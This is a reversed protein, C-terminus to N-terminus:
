PTTAVEVETIDLFYDTGPKCQGQADPNSIMMTLGGSPTWKSWTENGPGSVASLEVYENESADRKVSQCRFKARLSM